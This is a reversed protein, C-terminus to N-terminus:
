WSEILAVDHEHRQWEETLRGLRAPAAIGRLSAIKDDRIELIAIGVVQDDLVFLMAPRRQGRRRPDRALRRGTEAERSDTQLRGARVAAIRAASELVAHLKKALGGAGDSIATADDTLLAM